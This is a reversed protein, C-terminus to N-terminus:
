MAAVNGFVLYIEPAFARSRAARLSLALRRATVTHRIAAKGIWAPEITVSPEVVEGVAPWAPSVFTL